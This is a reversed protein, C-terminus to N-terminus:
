KRLEWVLHSLEPIILRNMALRVANTSGPMSFVALGRYTGAVARSLMAAPGIEQYSLMRFLEGFGVLTKELLGAVAEVTSDRRSVGTGGNILVADVHGEDALETLASVILAPEDKLLTYKAVPHNGAALLSIITQGSTDNADTRTDSVTIVACRVAPYKSRAQQEHQEAPM